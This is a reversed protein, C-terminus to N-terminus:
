KKLQAEMLQYQEHLIRFKNSIDYTQQLRVIAYIYIM